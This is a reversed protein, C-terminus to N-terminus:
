FKWNQACKKCVIFYARSDEGVYRDCVSKLVQINITKPINQKFDQEITM